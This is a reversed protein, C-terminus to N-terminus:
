RRFIRPQGNVDQAWCSVVLEKSLQLMREETAKDPFKFPISISEGDGGFTGVTGTRREYVSERPKRPHPIDHISETTGSLFGGVFVIGSSVFVHPTVTSYSLGYTRTLNLRYDTNDINTETAPRDSNSFYSSLTRVSRRVRRMRFDQCTSEPAITFTIQSGDSDKFTGLAAVAQKFAAMRQPLQARQEELTRQDAVRKEAAETEATRQKQLRYRLDGIKDLTEATPPVKAAYRQYWELARDLANLCEYTRAMYFAYIPDQRVPSTNPIAELANRAAPCDKYKDFAVRGEAFRDADTQASAPVAAAAAALWM